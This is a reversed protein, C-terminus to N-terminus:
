FKGDYVEKKRYRSFVLGTDLVPPRVSYQPIIGVSFLVERGAPVKRVLDRLCVFRTHPDM